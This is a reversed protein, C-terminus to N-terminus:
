NCSKRHAYYSCLTHHCCALSCISPRVNEYSLKELRCADVGLPCLLCRVITRHYWPGPPMMLLLLWIHWLPLYVFRLVGRCWIHEVEAALLTSRIRPCDPPLQFIELRVAGNCPFSDAHVTRFLLQDVPFLQSVRTLPAWFWVDLEGFSRLITM